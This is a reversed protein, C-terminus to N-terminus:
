FLDKVANIINVGYPSISVVAFFIWIWPQVLVKSLTKRLCESWSSLESTSNDATKDTPTTSDKPSLGMEQILKTYEKEREIEEAHEMAKCTKCHALTANEIAAQLTQQTTTILNELKKSSEELSNKLKTNITTMFDIQSITLSHMAETMKQIKEDQSIGNTAMSTLAIMESLQNKYDKDLDNAAAIKALIITTQNKIKESIAM